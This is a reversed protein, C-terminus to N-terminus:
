TWDAQNFDAQFTRKLPTPKILRSSFTQGSYLRGSQLDDNESRSLFRRSRDLRCSTAKVTTTKTTKSRIRTVASCFTLGRATTKELTTMTIPLRATAAEILPAASKPSHNAEHVPSCYGKTSPTGVVEVSYNQINNDKTVSQRKTTIKDVKLEM